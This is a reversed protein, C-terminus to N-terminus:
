IDSKFIQAYKKCKQYQINSCIKHISKCIEIQM